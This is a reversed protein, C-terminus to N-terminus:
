RSGRPAISDIWQAVRNVITSVEPLMRSYQLFAHMLGPLEVYEARVSDHELRLALERSDDRLPDYECGVIFAQPFGTLHGDLFNLVDRSQGKPLIAEEYGRLDARTMSPDLAGFQALSQSDELGYAGYFLVLGSIQASMADTSGGDDRSLPQSLARFVQMMLTAGCSDGMLVLRSFRPAVARVVSSVEQVQTPYKAQPALSYNVSYVPCQCRASIMRLLRDHTSSHGVIWGGGHAYVIAHGCNFDQGYLTVSVRNSGAFTQHVSVRPGGDNWWRLKMAYGQRIQELTQNPCNLERRIEDKRQLVQRMRNHM